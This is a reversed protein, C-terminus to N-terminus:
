FAYVKTIDEGLIIVIDGTTMFSPRGEVIEYTGPFLEQIVKFSYKFDNPKPIYFKTSEYEQPANDFRVVECGSNRIRRAYQGAYGSMGSGNYVEVRVRERELQRDIMSDAFERWVSDYESTNIYSTIGVGSSSEQQSLYNSSSLDILYPRTSLTSSHIQKLKAVTNGLTSLSSYIIAEADRFKSSSIALNLWGMKSVFSNLFFAEQNVNFGNAYYQAYVSDGSSEGLRDSFVAFADSSIWIYNDINGGLLQEFQWIAYEFGRGEQLFDGAFRFSSIPIGSGFDGSVDAYEVWGPIYTLVSVEKEKNESYLYARSIKEKENYEQEFVILTKDLQDKQKSLLYFDSNSKALVDESKINKFGVYAYIGYSIGVILLLFFAIKEVSFNIRPTKRREKKRKYRSVKSTM